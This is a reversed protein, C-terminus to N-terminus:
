FNMDLLLMGDVFDKELTINDSIVGLNPSYNQCTM